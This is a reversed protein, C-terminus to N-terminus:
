PVGPIVVDKNTATQLLVTGHLAADDDETM